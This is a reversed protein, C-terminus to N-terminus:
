PRAAELNGQFYRGEFVARDVASEDRTDTVVFLNNEDRQVLAPGGEGTSRITGAASAATSVEINIAGAFHLPPRDLLPVQAVRLGREETSTRAGM